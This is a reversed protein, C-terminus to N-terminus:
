GLNVHFRHSIGAFRAGFDQFSVQFVSDERRVETV